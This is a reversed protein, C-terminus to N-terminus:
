PRSKRYESPTMDYKERIIKYIIAANKYGVRDAIQEISLTSSRMLTEIQEVRIEKVIDQFSRGLEESILRSLYCKNYSFENALQELTITQINRRIYNLLKQHQLRKAKLGFNVCDVLSHDRSLEIFLLQLYHCMAAEYYIEKQYYEMVIREVFLKILPNSRTRFHLYHYSLNGERVSYELFDLISHHFEQNEVFELGLYKPPIIMKIIVDEQHPQYLAHLVNQNLIFLEGDNLVMRQDHSEIYQYCCGKYVYVLEIFDHRHFYPTTSPHHKKASITDQTRVLIDPTANDEHFSPFVYQQDEMLKKMHSSLKYEDEMLEYLSRDMRQKEEQDSLQLIQEFSPTM